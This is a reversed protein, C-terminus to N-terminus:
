KKLPARRVNVKAFGFFPKTEAGGVRTVTSRTVELNLDLFSNQSTNDTIVYNEGQYLRRRTWPIPVGFLSIFSIYESPVRNKEYEKLMEDARSM